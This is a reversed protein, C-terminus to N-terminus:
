KLLDIDLSSSNMCLYELFRKYVKKVDGHLIVKEACNRMEPAMVKASERKSLYYLYCHVSLGLLVEFKNELRFINAMAGCFFSDIVLADLGNEIFGYIYNFKVICQAELFDEVREEPINATYTWFCSELIRKWYLAYKEDYHTSLYYGAFRAFYYTNGLEAKSSDEDYRIWFTIRQIYEIFNNWRVYKQVKEPSM